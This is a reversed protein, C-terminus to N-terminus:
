CSHSTVQGARVQGQVQSVAQGAPDGTAPYAKVGDAERMLATSMAPVTAMLPVETDLRL